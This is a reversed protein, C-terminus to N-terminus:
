EVCPKYFQFIIYAKWYTYTHKFESYQLHALCWDVATICSCKNIILHQIEISENKILIQFLFCLM